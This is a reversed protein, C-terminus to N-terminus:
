RHRFVLLRSMMVHVHELGVCPRQEAVTLVGFGALLALGGQRNSDAVGCDERPGAPDSESFSFSRAATLFQKGSATESCATPDATPDDSSACNTQGLNCPPVRFTPVLAVYVRFHEQVPFVQCNKNQQQSPERKREEALLNHQPAPGGIRLPVPQGISRNLEDTVIGPCRTPYQALRNRPRIAMEFNSCRGGALEVDPNIGLSKSLEDNGLNM